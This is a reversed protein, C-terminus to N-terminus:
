ECTGLQCEWDPPVPAFPACESDYQVIGANFNYACVQFYLVVGPQVAWVQELEVSPLFSLNPGVDVCMARNFSETTYAWCFEYGTAGTSADWHWTGPISVLMLLAYIM